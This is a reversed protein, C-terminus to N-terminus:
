EHHLELKHVLALEDVEFLVEKKTRFLFVATPYRDCNRNYLVIGFDGITGLSGDNKLPLKKIEVIDGAQFTSVQKKSPIYDFNEEPEEQFDSIKNEFDRNKELEPNEIALATLIRRLNFFSVKENKDNSCVLSNLFEKTKTIKM